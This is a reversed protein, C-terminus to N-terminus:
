TTARSGTIARRSAKADLIARLDALTAPSGCLMFRDREADSPPLGLADTM